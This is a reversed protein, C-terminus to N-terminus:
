HTMYRKTKEGINSAYRTVKKHPKSFVIEIKM